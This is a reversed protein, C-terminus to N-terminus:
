PIEVDPIAPGFPPVFSFGTPVTQIATALLFLIIEFFNFNPYLLSLFICTEEKQISNILVLIILFSSNGLWSIMPVPASQLGELEDYYNIFGALAIQFAKEYSKNFRMAPMLIFTVNRKNSSSISGVGYEATFTTPISNGQNDFREYTVNKQKTKYNVKPNETIFVMSDFIFSAKKGVPKIGSIGLVTSM